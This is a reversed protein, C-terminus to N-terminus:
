LGVNCFMYKVAKTFTMVMRKARLVVKYSLELEHDSPVSIVYHRLITAIITKIEMYALKYGICNRPGASFPIFSYPHLAKVNGRSFRDPNFNEPDPHYEELRHVAIPLILINLGAPLTCNELQVDEVLKKSILPISPFLRLSENICQQLYVMENLSRLSIFSHKNFVTELEEVVKQQTEPHKALNYLTFTVAGAITDQGSLMFTCIQDVIDEDTFEGTTNAVRILHDLLCWELNNESRRRKDLIERAFEKFSTQQQTENNSLSSFRYLNEILYLPRQFRSIIFPHGTVFPSRLKTEHDSLPIGMMTHHLIGRVCINILDTIKVESKDQLGDVVLESSEAFTTIFSNLTMRHFFPEILKRDHKWKAGSSTLIGHGFFKDLLTYLFNKHTQNANAMIAKIDSPNNVVVFPVLCVWLRVLPGYLKSLSLFTKITETTTTLITTNGVLSTVPPGPLRSVLYVCRLWCKLKLLGLTVMVTLLVMVPYSFLFHTMTM